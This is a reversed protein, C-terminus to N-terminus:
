WVGGSAEGEPAPVNGEHLKVMDLYMEDVLHGRLWTACFECIVNRNDKDIRHHESHIWKECGDCYRWVM